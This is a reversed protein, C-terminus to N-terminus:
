GRPCWAVGLLCLGGILVLGLAATWFGLPDDDRAIFGRFYTQGTLLSVVGGGCFLGGFATLLGVHDPAVQCM